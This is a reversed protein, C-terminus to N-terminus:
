LNFTSRQVNSLRFEDIKGNFKYSDTPAYRGLYFDYWSGDAIKGTDSNSDELVGNVWIEAGRAGWTTAVHYWTGGTWMSTTSYLYPIPGSFWRLKGTGPMFTLQMEHGEMNVKGLLMQYDGLSSSITINPCFWLEITGKNPATDLLTGSSAYYAGACNLASAGFKGPATWISASSLTLNYSGTADASTTGTNENFHYLAVTNADPTYAGEPTPTLTPIPTPTQTPTRTPTPTPILFATGTQVGWRGSETCFFRVGSKVDAISAPCQIFKAKIDDYIDKMTKMTSGPAAGPEQFNPVPTVDIGSNLYNYIQSISYMGSGASPAGPADISGAIAKGGMGVAFMLALVLTMLKRM